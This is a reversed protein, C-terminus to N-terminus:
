RPPIPLYGLCCKNCLFYKKKVKSYGEKFDKQCRNFSVKNEELSLLICATAAVARIVAERITLGKHIGYLILTSLMDGAGISKNSVILPAIRTCESGKIIMSGHKGITLVLPVSYEYTVNIITDIILSNYDIDETSLKIVVNDTARLINTIVPVLVTSNIIKGDSLRIRTFGQLDIVSLVHSTVIKLLDYSSIELQLPSILAYEGLAILPYKKITNLLRLERGDNRTTINFLFTYGDIHIPDMSLPDLYKSVLETNAPISLYVKYKAGVMYLALSAYYAPGGKVRLYDDIIDITPASYVDLLFFDNRRMSRKAKKKLPNQQYM